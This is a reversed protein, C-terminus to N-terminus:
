KVKDQISSHLKKEISKLNPSYYLVSGNTTVVKENPMLIIQLIQHDKGIIEFKNLLFHSWGWIRKSLFEEHTPGLILPVPVPHFWRLFQHPHMLCQQSQHYYWINTVDYLIICDHCQQSQHYYWKNTVLLLSNPKEQRIM